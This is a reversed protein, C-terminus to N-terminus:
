ISTLSVLALHPPTCGILIFFLLFPPSFFLSFGSLFFFLFYLLYVPPPLFSCFLFAFGPIFSPPPPTHPPPKHPPGCFSLPPSFFSTSERRPSRSILKHSPSSSFTFLSHFFFDRLRTPFPSFSLPPLLPYLFSRRFSYPLFVPTRFEFLLPQINLFPPFVAPICFAERPRPFCFVFPFWRPDFITFSAEKSFGVLIYVILRPSFLSSPTIFAISISLLPLLHSSCPHDGLPSHPLSFLVSLLPM